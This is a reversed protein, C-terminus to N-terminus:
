GGNYLSDIENSYRSNIGRRKLKSTPTLVDSDTEWEEGLILVKKVREANNFQAMAEVVGENIEAVVDPNEALEQLTTFEIGRQAAWVPAVEPDLVILASIFPRQDGIAAAQGVIPITKLAAELNAPSVNKGGATIILEKKRDIITVYGDEDIDAIDGSHLWGDDDLAEATKEPENLYGVFVNGGRFCLEGDEALKVESGPIGPGVTGARPHHASFTMPGSAESMGYMEALPIGVARFWSILESQIPAASTVAQELKTLGLLERVTSFAVADLFEYTAIDEETATGETMRERIPIAAEVAENFKQEKEPDAALAASVGAHIKEWVRPVGFMISPHVQGLYTTLLATDPCSTVEWSFSILAYHSVMREAIHAMPLYSVVRKGVADDAQWGFSALLSEATWALNYHSLLVGKPSGTTGSTYIITAIDDPGVIDKNAELDIGTANDFGSADSVGAPLDSQTKLVIIQKLSPLKDRVALFSELFGDDELVAVTAECHNVLYEIQDPSSSNYISLPTAGVFLAGVDWWHFDPINRMMLVVRDGKAVGHDRFTAAARSAREAFDNFTLEGWSEDANQWRLATRDGNERVADLFATNVTKGKVLEQIDADTVTSM